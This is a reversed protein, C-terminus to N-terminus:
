RVLKEAGYASRAFYIGQPFASLNLVMESTTANYQQVQKGTADTITIAIPYKLADGLFRVQYQSDLLSGIRWTGSKEADTIGVMAQDKVKIIWGDSYGHLGTVDGNNSNTTGALIIEGPTQGLTIGGVYDGESGGYTDQWLINGNEDFKILWFNRDLQINMVADGAAYYNGDASPIIYKLFSGALSPVCTRWKLTQMSTDTKFINQQYGPYNPNVIPCLPPNHTDEVFIFDLGSNNYIADITHSQRLYSWVSTPSPSTAPVFLITTDLDLFGRPGNTGWMTCLYKSPNNTNKFIKRITDYSQMEYRFNMGIAAGNNPNINVILCREMPAGVPPGGMFYTDSSGTVLVKGDIFDISTAYDYYPHGYASQWLLVGNSDTCMVWFDGLGCYNPMNSNGTWGCAILNGNPMEVVDGVGDGAISAYTKNWIINGQMGMKILRGQQDSLILKDTRTKLVNTIGDYANTGICKKWMIQTQAQAQWCFVLLFGLMKITKM